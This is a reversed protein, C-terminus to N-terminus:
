PLRVEFYEFRQEGRCDMPCDTRAVLLRKGDRSIARIGTYNAVDLGYQKWARVDLVNLPETFVYRDDPTVYVWGTYGSVIRVPSGRGRQLFLQCRQFDGSHDGCDDASLSFTKATTRVKGPESLWEVETAIWERGDIAPPQVLQSVSIPGASRVLM